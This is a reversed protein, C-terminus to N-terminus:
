SQMRLRSRVWILFLLAAMAYFAHELVRLWEYPFENDLLNMLWGLVMLAFGSVPLVLGELLRLRRHQVIIYALVVLGLAFTLLEREQMIPYTKKDPRNIVPQQRHCAAPPSNYDM